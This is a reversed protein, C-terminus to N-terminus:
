HLPLWNDRVNFRKVRHKERENEIIETLLSPEVKIKEQLNAKRYRELEDIAEEAKEWEEDTFDDFTEIWNKVTKRKIKLKKYGERDTRFIKVIEYQLEKLQRWRQLRERKQRLYQAGKSPKQYFDALISLEKARMDSLGSQLSTEVKNFDTKSM